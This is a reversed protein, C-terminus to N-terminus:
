YEILIDVAKMKETELAKFSVLVELDVRFFMACVSNAQDVKPFFSECKSLALNNASM